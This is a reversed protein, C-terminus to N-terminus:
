DCLLVDIDSILFEAIGGKEVLVESPLNISDGAIFYVEGGSEVKLTKMGRCDFAIYNKAYFYKTEGSKITIDELCLNEYLICEKIKITYDAVSHLPLENKLEIKIIYTGAEPSKIIIKSYNNENGNDNRAIPDTGLRPGIDPKSFYVFIETDADNFIGSNTEIVIPIGAQEPDVVFYLWDVDCSHITNNNTRSWHFTHHQESGITITNANYGLNDPEYQDFFYKEVPDENSHGYGRKLLKDIMVTIQSNTFSDRCMRPNMYSMINSVDPSNIVYLDGWPDTASNDTFNCGTTLSGDNLNPDAPTDCLADGKTECNTCNFTCCSRTRSVSEMNCDNNADFKRHTHELGFYHGIEHALTSNAAESANIIIGDKTLGNRFVGAFDSDLVYSVNIVGERYNEIVVNDIENSKVFDYNVNDTHIIGCTKYFLIQANNDNFYQNLVMLDQEIELENVCDKNVWFQIPVKFLSSPVENLEDPILRNQDTNNLGVSDAFQILYDNNGYWPLLEIEEDTLPITGCEIEQSYSTILILHLLISLIFKM